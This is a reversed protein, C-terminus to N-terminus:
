QAHTEGVGGGGKSVLLFVTPASKSILTFAIAPKM